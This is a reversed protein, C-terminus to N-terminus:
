RKDSMNSIMTIHTCTTVGIKLYEINHMKMSQELESIQADYYQWIAVIVILAVIVYVTVMVLYRDKM